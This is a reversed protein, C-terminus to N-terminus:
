KDIMWPIFPGLIISCMMLSGFFLYGIMKFILLLYGLFGDINNINVNLILDIMFACGAAIVCGVAFGVVSLLIKIAIKM